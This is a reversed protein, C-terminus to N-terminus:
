MAESRVQATPVMKPAVSTCVLEFVQVNCLFDFCLKLGEVPRIPHSKKQFNAYLSTLVYKEFFTRLKSITQGVGAM